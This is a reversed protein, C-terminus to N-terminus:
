HVLINVPDSWAGATRGVTVSVRFSYTTMLTLGPIDTDAYPTASANSWTRGGDTSLQWNLTKKRNVDAKSVLASVNAALHVTGPTTTLAATLVAKYHSGTRSVVLGGAQILARANEATMTDALGQIYTRLSEMATWVADRKTNRLSATGRTRTSTATQQATVLGAILALFASMTITPSAFMGANTTISDHMTQARGIVAPINKKTAGFSGRPRSETTM